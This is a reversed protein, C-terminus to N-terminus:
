TPWHPAIDTRRPNHIRRPALCMIHIPLSTFRGGGEDRWHPNTTPREMRIIAYRGHNTATTRTPRRIDAASSTAHM